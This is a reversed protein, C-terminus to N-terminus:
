LLHRRSYHALALPTFQVTKHCAGSRSSGSLSAAVREATVTVAGNVEAPLYCAVCESKLVLLRHVFVYSTMSVIIYAMHMM